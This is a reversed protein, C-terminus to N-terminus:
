KSLGWKRIYKRELVRILGSLQMQLPLLFETCSKSSELLYTYEEVMFISASIEETIDTPRGM